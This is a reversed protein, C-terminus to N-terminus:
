AFSDRFDDATMVLTRTDAAEDLKTQSPSSGKIVVAACDFVHTRSDALTGGRSKILSDVDYDDAGKRGVTAFTLGYLPTEENNPIPEGYAIVLLIKYMHKCPKGRKKFDPCSCGRKSTLYSAGSKGFMNFYEGDGSVSRIHIPDKDARINRDIQDDEDHLTDPWISNWNLEACLEKTLGALRARDERLKEQKEKIEAERREAEAALQKQREAEQEKKEREREQIMERERQVEEEERKVKRMSIFALAVGGGYFGVLGLVITATPPTDIEPVFLSCTFLVGLVVLVVAWKGSKTKMMKGFM